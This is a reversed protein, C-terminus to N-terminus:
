PLVRADEPSKPSMADRKVLLQPAGQRTLVHWEGNSSQEQPCIPGWSVGGSGERDM